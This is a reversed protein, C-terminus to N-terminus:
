GEKEDLIVTIHSTRKRVRMARGMPATRFRKMTPGDDVYIERVYLRDIDKIQPNQEANAVASKLLKMIIRAGRKQVFRLTNIAQEVQLRRVLDAVLRAKRPSIRIYRLRARAQM